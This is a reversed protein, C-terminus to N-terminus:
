VSKNYSELIPKFYNLLIAGNRIEVTSPDSRISTVSFIDSPESVYHSAAELFARIRYVVATYYKRVFAIHFADSGEEIDKIMRSVIRKYFEITEKNIFDYVVYNDTFFQNTAVLMLFRMYSYIKNYLMEYRESQRDYRNYMTTTDAMVQAIELLKEVVDSSGGTQSRMHAFDPRYINTMDSKSLSTEGAASDRSDADTMDSMGIDSRVMNELIELNSDRQHDVSKFITNLLHHTYSGTFFEKKFLRIQSPMGLGRMQPYTLSQMTRNYMHIFERATEADEIKHSRLDSTDISNQRDDHNFLRIRANELVRMVHETDAGSTLADAIRKTMLERLSKSAVHDEVARALIQATETTAVTDTRKDSGMLSNQIATALLQNLKDVLENTMNKNYFRYFENIDQLDRFTEDIRDLRTHWIGHQTQDSLMQLQRVGTLVAGTDPSSMAISIDRLSSNVATTLDNYDYQMNPIQKFAGVITGLVLQEDSTFLSEKSLADILGISTSVKPLLYSGFSTYESRDTNTIYHEVDNNAKEIAIVAREARDRKKRLETLIRDHETTLAALRASGVDHTSTPDITDLISLIVDTKYTTLDQTDQSKRTVIRLVQASTNTSTSASAGASADARTSEIEGSLTTQIDDIISQISTGVAVSRLVTKVVKNDGVIVDAYSEALEGVVDIFQTIDDPKDNFTRSPVHVSHDATSLEFGGEIGELNTLVIQLDSIVTDPNLVDKNLDGTELEREIRELRNVIRHALKRVEDFDTTNIHVLINKVQDIKERIETIGGGTQHQIENTLVRENIGNRIADIRGVMFSMLRPYATTIDSVLDTYTRYKQTGSRCDDIVQNMASQAYSSLFPKHDNIFELRINEITHSM